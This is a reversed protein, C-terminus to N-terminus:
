GPLKRPVTRVFRRLDLLLGRAAAEEAPTPHEELAAYLHQYAGTPNALPGLLVRACGLHASARGPGAPHDALARQYAALAARPHGHSALEDGLRIKERPGLARRTAAHPERFFWEAAQDWAGADLASHFARLPDAGAPAAPRRRLDREPRRAWLRDAVFALGAGAVFGGLHAGHSVGSAGGSLLLPLLNQLVVYIGLVLRAPLEIVNGFLPFLFVWVRVRNHPFWLFYLGLVGSIAGSAGVSPIASGMRLVGDGMAAAAGTGLYALLYGLRGLRGEVNDGYIWLFLMNGALHLLGGHLFMSTLVDLASPRAPQFGHEWVILDYESVGRAIERLDARGLGREEAIALLYDRFAPDAPDAPRWGAPLLVVTVAVNVAILAATIWPVGPPNPSDGVPFFL